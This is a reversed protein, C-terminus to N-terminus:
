QKAHRLHTLTSHFTIDGSNNAMLLHCCQHALLESTNKLMQEKVETSPFNSHFFSQTAMTQSISAQLSYEDTFNLCCMMILRKVM